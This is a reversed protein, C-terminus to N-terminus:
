NLILNIRLSGSFHRLLALAKGGTGRLGKPREAPTYEGLACDGRPGLLQDRHGHCVHRLTWVADAAVGAGGEMLSRRCLLDHFGDPDRGLHTGATALNSRM